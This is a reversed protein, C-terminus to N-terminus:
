IHVPLETIIISKGKNRQREKRVNIQHLEKIYEVDAVPPRPKIVHDIYFFSSGHLVSLVFRNSPHSYVLATDPDLM